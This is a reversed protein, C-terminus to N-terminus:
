AKEGKAFVAMTQNQKRLALDVLRPFVANIRVFLSEPFGLYVDKKDKEISQIVKGAVWEPTDMHMGTAQAMEYVAETNLRTKVARPAIYTVSVGTGSTERRLSESFGRLAFKSASYASFWAFAISGFTSGINVIKGQGQAQMGPLLRHILLMPVITNLQIIRELLAPDEEVFPRYSMLGAANILVDIQGFSRLAKDIAHERAESNLLDTAIPLVNGGQVSIRKALSELADKDRDLLAVDAGAKALKIAIESGIGGSAGTLVIKKNELKMPLAGKQTKRIGIGIGIGIVSM